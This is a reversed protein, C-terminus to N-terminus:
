KKIERQAQIIFDKYEELNLEKQETMKNLAKAIDNLASAVATIAYNQETGAMRTDLARQILENTTKLKNM